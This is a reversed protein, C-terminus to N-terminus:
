NGLSLLDDLVESPGWRARRIVPWYIPRSANWLCQWEVCRNRRVNQLQHVHTPPLSKSALETRPQHHLLLLSLLLLPPLKLVGASSVCLLLLYSLSKTIVKIIFLCVGVSQFEDPSQSNIRELQPCMRSGMSQGQRKSSCTALPKIKEGNSNSLCSVSRGRLM